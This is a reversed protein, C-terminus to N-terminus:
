YPGFADSRVRRPLNEKNKILNSRNINKLNRKRKAKLRNIIATPAASSYLGRKISSRTTSQIGDAYEGSGLNRRYRKFDFSAGSGGKQQKSLNDSAKDLLNKLGAKAETALTEKLNQGDLLNSLVRSGSELGQRGIAAGAQKGFPLLFRWLHRLVSGLGGAGRQYAMGSFLPYNAGNGNNHYVAASMSPAGSGAQESFTLYAWEVQLPDFDVHMKPFFLIFACTLGKKYM